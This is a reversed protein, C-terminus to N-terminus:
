SNKPKRLSGYIPSQFDGRMRRSHRQVMGGKTKPFTGKKEVLGFQDDTPDLPNVRDCFSTLTMIVMGLYCIALWMGYPIWELLGTDNPHEKKEYVETQPM